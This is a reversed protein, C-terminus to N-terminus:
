RFWELQNLCTREGPAVCQEQILCYSQEWFGPREFADHGQIVTRSHKLLQMFDELLDCPLLLVFSSTKSISTWAECLFLMAVFEGLDEHSILTGNTVVSQSLQCM